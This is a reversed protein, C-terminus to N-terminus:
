HPLDLLSMLYSKKEKRFPIFFLYVVSKYWKQNNSQWAASLIVTPFDHFGSKPLPAEAWFLIAECRDAM